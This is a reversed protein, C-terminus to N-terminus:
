LRWRTSRVKARVLLDRGGEEAEHQRAALVRHRDARSMIPLLMGFPEGADVHHARHSDRLWRLYRVDRVPVPLRRHIVIEHVVLYAIGYATAGAAIPWVWAPTLGVAAAVFLSVGLVSFCLPFLDNLELRTRQPAHHSAHWIMGRRHMLWRHAGYAVGEMAVFSIAFLAVFKM